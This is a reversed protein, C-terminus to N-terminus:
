LKAAMMWRAAATIFERHIEVPRLTFQAEKLGSAAAKTLLEMGRAPDKEVLDGVILRLGLVLQAQPYGADAARREYDLGADVNKPVLNGNLLLESLELMAAPHSREAAAAVLRIGEDIRRPGAQGNAYAVGLDFMADANGQQIAKEFYAISMVPQPADLGYGKLLMNAFNLQGIPDGLNAARQMWRFAAVSNAHEGQVYQMAFDVFRRAREPPDLAAVAEMEALDRKALEHGHDAARRMWVRADAPDAAHGNGDFLMNAIHFQAWTNGANGAKRCWEFANALDELTARRIYIRCIIEGVDALDQDAIRRCEDLAQDPDYSDGDPTSHQRCATLLEAPAQGFATDNRSPLFMAAVVVISWLFRSVIQRPM